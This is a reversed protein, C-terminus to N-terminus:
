PGATRRRAGPHGGDEGQRHREARTRDCAQVKGEDHLRITEALESLRTDTLGHLGQLAKMSGPDDGYYRDLLRFSEGIKAVAKEYPQLYEKRGTLLYGRQGTEADLIAQALDQISARSEQM